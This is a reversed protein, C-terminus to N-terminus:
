DSRWNSASTLWNIITRKEEEINVLCYFKEIKRHLSFLFFTRETKKRECCLKIGNQHNNAHEGISLDFLNRFTFTM